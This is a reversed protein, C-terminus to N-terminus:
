IECLASILNFNELLIRSFCVLLVKCEVDFDGFYKEGPVSEISPYTAKQRKTSCEARSECREQEIFSAESANISEDKMNRANSKTLMQTEFIRLILALNLAILQLWLDGNSRAEVSDLLLTVRNADLFQEGGVLLAEEEIDEEIDLQSTMLEGQLQSFTQFHGDCM